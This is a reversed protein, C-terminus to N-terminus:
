RFKKKVEKWFSDAMNPSLNKGDMIKQGTHIDLVGISFRYPSKTRVQKVKNIKYAM